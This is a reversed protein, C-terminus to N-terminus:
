SVVAGDSAHYLRVRYDWEPNRPEFRPIEIVTKISQREVVRGAISQLKGKLVAEAQSECSAAILFRSGTFGSGFTFGPAVFFAAWKPRRALSIKPGPCISNGAPASRGTM